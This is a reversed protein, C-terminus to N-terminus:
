RLYVVFGQNKGAPDVGWGVLTKGDPTVDSAQTLLWGSVNVGCGQLLTALDGDGLSSSLVAARGNAGHGVIVGSDSVAEPVFAGLSQMGTAQTWRFGSTPSGGPGSSSGVVTLGNPSVASASSTSGTTGLLTGLGLTPVGEQWIFAEQVGGHAPLGGGGVIITGDASVGSVVSVGEFLPSGLSRGHAGNPALWEPDSGELWRMATNGWRGVLVRGDASGDFVSVYQDSYALMGGSLERFSFGGPVAGAVKAGDASIVTADLTDWGLAAMGTTERWRFARSDGGVEFSKGAVSQGDHSIAAGRSGTGHVSFGVPVFRCAPEVCAAAESCTGHQGCAVGLLVSNECVGSNCADATCESQDDCDPAFVCEQCGDPTGNADLDIGDDSGTCRDVSDCVGDLDSDGMADLPCADVCDAAGDGDSDQDSMGCGCVGPELKQPDNPCLDPPACPGNNTCGSCDATARAAIAAVNCSDLVANNAVQFTPTRTLSTLASLTKLQPNRWVRLTSGINTVSGVGSLSVLGANDTIQLLNGITVISDLGTLDSLRPNFRVDVYSFVKTLSGLGRLSTLGVNNVVEANSILKVSELGSLDVLRPNVYVQLSSLTDVKSLATMSSLSVNRFLALKYVRRLNELGHLSTLSSNDEVSITGAVALLSSFGVVDTLASNKVTINGTVCWAGGLAAIDGATDTADVLLSGVFVGSGTAGSHCNSPRVCTGSTTCAYGAGCEADATCSLVLPNTLSGATEVNDADAACGSLCALLGLSSGGLWWRVM